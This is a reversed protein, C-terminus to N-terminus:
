RWIYNLSSIFGVSPIGFTHIVIVTICITASTYALIETARIDDEFIINDLGDESNDVGVGNEVDLTITPLETAEASQTLTHVVLYDIILFILLYFMIYLFINTTIIKRNKNENRM